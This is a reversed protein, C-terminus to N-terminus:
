HSGSSPQERAHYGTCNVLYMHRRRTGGARVEFPDPEGVHDFHLHLQELL